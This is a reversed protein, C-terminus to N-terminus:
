LPTLAPKLPIVLLALKFSTACPSKAYNSRWKTLIVQARGKCNLPCWSRTNPMWNSPRRGWRGSCGASRATRSGAAGTEARANRCMSFRWFSPKGYLCAAACARTKEESPGRRGNLWLAKGSPFHCVFRVRIWRSPVSLPVDAIGDISDIYIWLISARPTAMRCVKRLVRAESKSGWM